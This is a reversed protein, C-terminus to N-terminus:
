GGLQQRAVFRPPDRRVQRLQPLATNAAIERYTKTKKLVVRYTKTKKLVLNRPQQFLSRGDEFGRQNSRAERLEGGVSRRFGFFATQTNAGTSSVKPGIRGIDAYNLLRRDSDGIEAPVLAITVYKNPAMNHQQNSYTVEGKLSFVNILGALKGTTINEVQVDYNHAQIATEAVFVIRQKRLHREIVNRCPNGINQLVTSAINDDNSSWVRVEGTSLTNKHVYDVGVAALAKTLFSGSAGATFTSVSQVGSVGQTEPQIIKKNIMAQIDSFCIRHIAVPNGLHTIDNESRYLAPAADEERQPTVLFSRPYGPYGAARDLDPVQAHAGVSMMGLCLLVYLANLAKM